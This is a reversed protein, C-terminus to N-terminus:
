QCKKKSPRPNSKKLTSRKTNMIRQRHTTFKDGQLPKTFYDATMDDTSCYKVKVYGQNQLDHIYFYKVNMHKTRKGASQRGNKALLIASQNDQYVINEKVEYGQAEIFHKTWMISSVADDVALIEAETSSRSNTKQKSCLSIGAGEGMFMTAGTHGKMDPHVGFAADIYWEIIGTGDWKLTLSDDKTIKLWCMMRKLKAWDDETPNRTRTCLFSVAPQIDPRARKAVFLAKAVMAVFVEKFEPSLPKSDKRIEFLHDSAPTKPKGTLPEPFDEVMGAVYDVMDITVSGDDNYKLKMGLYKHEKGITHKVEGIAGYKDKVWQLLDKVPKEEVHGAKLDDVHWSVTMQKGNIMKNAVCPDYPNIEFGEAELDKRLKKYFLLASELMGYIAKDIRVYLHSVGKSDVYVFRAYVEPLQQCLMDVMPGSLKMIYRQGDKDHKPHQTQIFANPIDATMMVRRERAEIMSTIMIAPTSVTPSSADVRDVYSRQISGNACTRSKIEGSSKEVMFMVAPMARQKELETLEDYSAPTFCARDHLQLLEKNGSNIGEMGWKKIGKMVSCAQIFSVGMHAAAADIYQLKEIIRTAVLAMMPDYEIQNFEDKLQDLKKNLVEQAAQMSKPRIDVTVASVGTSGASKDNRAAIRVSRRQEVGTSENSGAKEAQKAAIRKSKRLIPPLPGPGDDEDQPEEPEAEEAEEFVVVEDQAEEIADIAEEREREMDGVKRTVGTPGAGDDAGDDDSDSDDDDSEDDSSDNLDDSDTDSDSDDSDSEVEYDEDADEILDEVEEPDVEDQYKLTEDNGDEEDDNYDLDDDEENYDVGAIWSSDYLIEGSKTRLVLGKMGDDAAWQEVENIITPTIPMPTFKRRNIIAKTHINLLEHGGSVDEKPGLYICDLARPEMTNTPDNDEHSLVYQGFKWKGHHEDYMRRGTVIQRPSYHKSIGGKVPWFNLRRAMDRVLYKIMIKPMARYPASHYVCRVREKITRNSREVPGDHNNAAVCHITVNMEDKVEDLLTEFEGDCWIDTVIFKNDTNYIRLVSDLAKFLKKAKTSEMFECTRYKINESITSLFPMGNVYLVDIHLTIDRRKDLLSDPPDYVDEIAQHTPASVTKGKVMGGIPGWIDIARDIDEPKITCGVILNSRVALKADRISPFGAAIIFDRARKADNIEKQTYYSENEEVTELFLGFEYEEPDLGYINNWLREFKITGRPTQVIFADEMRTSYDIEYGRDRLRGLSFLNAHAKDQFWVLGYNKIFAKQATTTNGGNTTMSMSEGSDHVDFVYDPNGFWDDSSCSDLLILNKLPKGLLRTNVKKTLVGTARAKQSALMQVANPSECIQGYQWGAHRSRSATSAGDRSSGVQAMNAGTAGSAITSGSVSASGSPPAPPVQVFQPKRKVVWDKHPRTDKEPCQSVKHDESGCCFCHAKWMTAFNTGEFPILSNKEKGKDKKDKDNMRKMHDKYAQEIPRSELRERAKLLNKPYQDLGDAFNEKLKKKYEGHKKHNANYSFSRTDCCRELFTEQYSPLM